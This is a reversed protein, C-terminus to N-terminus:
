KEHTSPCHRAGTLPPYRYWTSSVARARQTLDLRHRGDPLSTITVYGRAAMIQAAALLSSQIIREAQDLNCAIRMIKRQVRTKLKTQLNM